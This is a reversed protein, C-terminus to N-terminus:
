NQDRNAKFAEYNAMVKKTNPHDDGLSTRFIKIARQFLPAAEDNRGDAALLAALQAYPLAFEPHNPGLTKEGIELARRFQQEAEEFNGTERNLRALNNFWIATYPHEVGLTKEGIALARGYLSKAESFRGSQQLINALNNLAIAVDPHDAGLSRESIEVARSFLVEAEEIRGIQRLLNALNSLSIATNPHEPGLAQEDIALARRFLPEAEVIRGTTSLLSALNSLGSAISAHDPGLANESVELARQYLSEAGAYRGQALNNDALNNLATATREDDFGFETEAREVLLVWLREARQYAGCKYAFEGAKLVTDYTPALRAAEGYHKDADHWRIDDEAIRGREFALKAAEAAIDDAQATLKEQAEAFLSDALETDGTDLARKAAEITETEMENHLRALRDHATDLEAQKRAFDVELDTARKHAETLQAEILVRDNETAARLKDEATAVRERVNKEHQEFTLVGTRQRGKTRCASVDEPSLNLAVTLADVIKIDPNDVRGRELESIRPKRSEDDFARIALERQSLGQEGRHRAVLEGFHIGFSM